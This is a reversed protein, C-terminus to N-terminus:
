PDDPLQHTTRIIKGRPSLVGFIASKPRIVAYPAYTNRYSISPLHPKAALAGDQPVQRAM